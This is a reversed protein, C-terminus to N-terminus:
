RKFCTNCRKELFLFWYSCARYPIAMIDPGCGHPSMPHCIGDRSLLIGAKQWGKFNKATKIRAKYKYIILHRRFNQNLEIKTNTVCYFTLNKEQACITWKITIVYVIFHARLNQIVHNRSYVKAAGLVCTQSRAQM